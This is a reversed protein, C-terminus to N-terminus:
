DFLNHFFDSEISLIEYFSIKLGKDMILLHDYQDIKKIRDTITVYEGGNKKKDPVFYTITVEPKDGMNDLLYSIKWDIREKTEDCLELREGTYRGTEAIADDYGVLAAFPAFQAARDLMSMRPHTKPTPCPLDIIDDYNREIM